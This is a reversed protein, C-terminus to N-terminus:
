KWKKEVYRWGRVAATSAAFSLIGFGVAGALFQGAPTLPRDNVSVGTNAWQDAPVDGAAGLGPGAVMRNRMRDFFNLVALKVRDTRVGDLTM